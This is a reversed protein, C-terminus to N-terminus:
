SQNRELLIKEIEELTFEQDCERCFKRGTDWSYRIPHGQRCRAPKPM